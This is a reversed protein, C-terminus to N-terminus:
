QPLDLHVDQRLLAEQLATVDLEGPACGRASAMAAAAGAAQGIAMCSPTTRLSAFAEVSCSIARGAVLVNRLDSSVLAGYPIDYGSELLEQSVLAKGEPDHIDIQYGNRAIVDEFRRGTTIDETTLMRRGQLRRSERIGIQPGTEVLYSNAFGPVHQQLFSLVPWVQARGEIEAETVAEIATPDRDIVRTTNVHVEGPRVGAFFLVLDRPVEPPGYTEWLSFFGSVGTLPWESLRDIRSDKWFEDPHAVMYAKVADLDVGGVRMMMTMAQVKGDAPRGLLTSGGAMAVLGCDGTGDVFVDGRVQLRGYPGVVTVADIKGAAVRTEAALAHLLLDAGAERVMEVAIQKFVEKDFPTVSHCFGVTDRLHGPSAGRATLRDVIEQPIGRVIQQGQMDHFTMWPYVLAATSMGGLFAYREVLLTRAGLRGAAIAANLGGPGGGVIVVDYEHM